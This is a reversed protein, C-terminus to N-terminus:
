EAVVAKGLPAKAADGSKIDQQIKYLGENIQIQKMEKEFATIEKSAM